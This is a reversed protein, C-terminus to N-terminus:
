RKAGNPVSRAHQVNDLQVNVCSKDPHMSVANLRSQPKQKAAKLRPCLLGM